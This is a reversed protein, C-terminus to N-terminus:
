IGLLWAVCPELSETESGLTPGLNPCSIYDFTTWIPGEFSSESARTMADGSFSDRM